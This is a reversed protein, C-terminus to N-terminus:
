AHSVTVVIELHDGLPSSFFEEPAKGIFGIVHAPRGVALTGFHEEAGLAFAANKTVGLYVEPLSFGCKTLGLFAAFWLNNMPASGPNFDSAIAVKVGSARFRPAEVYPINSFFSTLPLTVAAVGLTELKALDSETAYQCHDVSLVRGRKQNRTFKAQERRGAIMAALSSGGSRSFEDAHIHVDLNYQLAAALWREGQESSFYNREIFVDVALPLGFGREAAVNMAGYKPLFDILAQIYSDLGRHEPSAAHPGLITPAIKPLPAEANRFAAFMCELHRLEEEPSLGYGTKSELLVVGRSLSTQANRVFIQTLEESSSERTAKVTSLIGGGQKAIEEYSMGQSKLVTEHARSGGFIPHTHADILGPMLTLNSADIVTLNADNLYRQAAGAGIEVIVGNRVVLDENKRVGLVLPSTSDFVLSDDFDMTVICAANQFVLTENKGAVKIKSM